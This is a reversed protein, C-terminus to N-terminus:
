KKSGLGAPNKKKAVLLLIPIAGVLTILAAILFDDDIGEIYAQKNANAVVIYQSQKMADSLSSGSNHELQYTLNHTTNM